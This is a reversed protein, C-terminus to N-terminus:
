EPEVILVMGETATVHVKTGKNLTANSRVTWRTDGLMQAGEKDLDAGLVFSKGILQAARDNLLPNDTADNLGSFFVKYGVTLAVSLLGFWLLQWEWALEPVVLLVGAVVLAALAIGIFFGTTAVIELILLAAALVFWHWSQLQDLLEMM